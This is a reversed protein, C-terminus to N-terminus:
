DPAACALVAAGTVVAATTCLGVCVAAGLALPVGVFAEILEGTAVVAPEEVAYGAGFELLVPAFGPFADTLLATTLVACGAGTCVVGGTCTCGGAFFSASPSTRRAAGVIFRLPWACDPFSASGPIERPLESGTGFSASPPNSLREFPGAAGM